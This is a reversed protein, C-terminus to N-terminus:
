IKKILLYIFFPAGAFATIIGVPLEVPALVSRALGDCLVLFGAGAFASAPLLHRHSAGITLRVVHPIILGVFGIIGSAAVCGGVALSSVMLMIKGTNRSNVGMRSAESDGLSLIDLDRRYFLSIIIVPIVAAATWIVTDWGADALSGMLFFLIGYVSERKLVMFLLTAASFLSTVAVGALILTQPSNRRSISSINYVLMVAGISGIFAAPAKILTLGAVAVIVTGMAAGASSGIIYPEALPNKLISQLIAGSVSLGAGVILGLFIRPLRLKLLIDMDTSTLSFININAAGMHVAMILSLGAFVLFAIHWKINRNM